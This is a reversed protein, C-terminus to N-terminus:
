QHRKRFRVIYSLGLALLGLGMLLWSGPEPVSVPTSAGATSATTLITFVSLGLRKM